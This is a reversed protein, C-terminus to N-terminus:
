STFLIFSDALSLQLAIDTVRYKMTINHIHHLLVKFLSSFNKLSNLKNNITVYNNCM